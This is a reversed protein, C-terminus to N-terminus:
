RPSGGHHPLLNWVLAGVFTSFAIWFAAGLPKLPHLYRKIRKRLGQWFMEDERRADVTAVLTPALTALTALAPTAEALLLLKEAAAALRHLAQISGNLNLLDLRQDLKKIERSNADVKRELRQFDVLPAKTAAM